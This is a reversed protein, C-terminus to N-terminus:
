WLIDIRIGSSKLRYANFGAKAETDTWSFATGPKPATLSYAAETDNGRFIEISNISTLDSGDATKDPATFNIKVNM